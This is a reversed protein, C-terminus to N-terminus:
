GHAMGRAEVCTLREALRSQPKKSGRSSPVSATPALGDVSVMPFYWSVAMMRSPRERAEKVPSSSTSRVRLKRSSVVLAEM